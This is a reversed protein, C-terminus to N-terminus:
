DAVVEASAGLELGDISWISLTAATFKPLHVM